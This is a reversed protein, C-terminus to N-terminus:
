LEVMGKVGVLLSLLFLLFQKDVAFSLEESYCKPSLRVIFVQAIQCLM